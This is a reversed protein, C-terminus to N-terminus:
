RTKKKKPQMMLFGVIVLCIPWYQVMHLQIFMLIKAIDLTPLVLLICGTFAFLVGVREKM